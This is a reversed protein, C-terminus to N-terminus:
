NKTGLCIDELIHTQVFNSDSTSVQTKAVSLHGFYEACFFLDISNRNTTLRESIHLRRSLHQESYGPVDSFLASSGQGKLLPHFHRKMVTDSTIVRNM